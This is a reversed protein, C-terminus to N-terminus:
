EYRSALAKARETMSQAGSEPSTRGALIEQLVGNAYQEWEAYWVAQFPVVGSMHMANALSSAVVDPNAGWSQLSAAIVSDKELGQYGWTLTGSEVWRKPTTYEGDPTAGGLFRLLRWAEEKNESSGNM